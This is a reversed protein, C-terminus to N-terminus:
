LAQGGFSFSVNYDTNVDVEGVNKYQKFTISWCNGPPIITAQYEWYTGRYVDGSNEINIPQAVNGVVNFYKGRYGVGFGATETTASTDAVFEDTIKYTRNYTLEIYQGLPNFFKLRSSLDTVDANPYYKSLTYTEFNDFNLNLVANLPTWPKPDNATKQHNIDYYQFLEFRAILRYDSNPGSVRKRVVKNLLGFRVVELDFLRDNYDFQVKGQGPGGGPDHDYFDLEILPDSIQDFRRNEFNGFFVHNELSKVPIRSYTISPQIKHQILTKQNEDTQGLDFVNWLETKLDLDTQVYQRTASKYFEQGQDNSSESPVDTNFTYGTHRFLLKPQLDLRGWFQMPYTIEPSIDVRTGTRLIDESDDNTPDSDADKDIDFSGGSSVDVSGGTVNDFSFNKRTFNAFSTDMKFYLPLDFFRQRAMAGKIEPFRHVADKNNALPDDKLLNIYYSAEASTHFQEWNKTISIRNELAPDGLVDIEENFDTTYELDSMLNINMRNVYNNPLEYFHDYKFFWRNGPYHTVADPRLRKKFVNDNIIATNLHGKSNEDLVYRFEGLGKLGRKDYYKATFTADKSRDIAWFYSQGFEFGGERSTGWTPVLLGSQRESKLPVLIRPLFFFPVNAVKLVPLKIYAYGGLEAEIVAGSFSWAPPCTACATYSANKALYEKPGVKDIVDGEFIVQGSQIFAKKFTGLETKYNYLLSDGQTYVDGNKLVVNGSAEVQDSNLTITAQDALITQSNYIITVEGNLQITKTSLDRIVENANLTIGQIRTQANSYIPMLVFLSCLITSVLRRLIFLM